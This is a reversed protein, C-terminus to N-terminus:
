KGGYGQTRADNMCETFTEFPGKCELVLDGSQTYARWIWRISGDRADQQPIFSWRFPLHVRDTPAM